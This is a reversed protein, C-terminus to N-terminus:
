QFIDGRRALTGRPESNCLGATSETKLEIETECVRASCAGAHCTRWGWPPEAPGLPADTTTILAQGGTVTHFSVHYSVDESFAIWERCISSRLVM